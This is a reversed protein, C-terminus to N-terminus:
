EVIELDGEGKAFREKHENFLKQLAATYLAHYKDVLAKFESTDEPGTLAPCLPHPPTTVTCPRAPGALAAAALAIGPRAPCALPCDAPLLVRAAPLAHIAM